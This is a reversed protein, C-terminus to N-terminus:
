VKEFIGKPIKRYKLTKIALETEGKYVLYYIIVNIVFSPYDKSEKYFSLIVGILKKAEEDKERMLNVKVLNVYLALKFAVENYILKNNETYFTGKMEGMTFNNKELVELAKMVSNTRLYAEIIYNDVIFQYNKNLSNEKTYLEFDKAASIAENYDENRLLCFILNIYVSPYISNYQKSNSTINQVSQTDYKEFVNHIDKEYFTYGNMILLCQKFSAIAEAINKNTDEDINEKQSSSNVLVFRKPDDNIIKNVVDNVNESQSNQKAEQLERELCCLGLRYFLYPNNSFYDINKLSSLIKYCKEYKKTYFFCLSINYLVISLYKYSSMENQHILAECHKFCYEAMSYKKEKMNQIGLSNYYFLISQLSSNTMNSSTSSFELLSNLHKYFKFQTNNVYDIRIKLIKYFNKLINNYNSPSNSSINKKIDSLLQKAAENNNQNISIFCNYLLFLNDYQKQNLNPTWLNIHNFYVLSSQPIQEKHEEGYYTKINENLKNLFYKAVNNLNLKISSDVFMLSSNVYFIFDQKNKNERNLYRIFIAIMKQYDLSRFSSIMYNMFYIEKESTYATKEEEENENSFFEIIRQLLDFDYKEGKGTSIFHELFLKNWENIYYNNQIKEFIEEFNSSTICSLLETASSSTEITPVISSSIDKNAENTSNLTTSTQTPTSHNEM